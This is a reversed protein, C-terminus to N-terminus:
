ESGRGGARLRYFLRLRRIFERYLRIRPDESEAIAKLVARAHGPTIQEPETINQEQMFRKLLEETALNYERHFSDYGHRRGDVGLYLQGGTARDFVKQTELPMRKYLALPFEHHGQGAYDAGPVWYNDPTVDSLIQPIGEGDGAQNTWGGHDSRAELANSPSGRVPETFSQAARSQPRTPVRERSPTHPLWLPYLADSPVIGASIPLPATLSGWYSAPDLHEPPAALRGLFGGGVRANLSALLGGQPKLSTPLGSLRLSEKAGIRPWLELGLEGFPPTPAAPVRISPDIGTPWRPLTFREGPTNM